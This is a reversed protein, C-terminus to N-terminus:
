KLEDPRAERVWWDGSTQRAFTLGHYVFRDLVAESFAGARDALLLRTGPSVAPKPLVVDGTLVHMTLERMVPLM